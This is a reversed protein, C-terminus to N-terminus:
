IMLNKKKFNLDNAIDEIKEILYEHTDKENFTEFHIRDDADIVKLGISKLSGILYLINKETLDNKFFTGKVFSNNKDIYYYRRKASLILEKGIETTVRRIESDWSNNDMKHGCQRCYLSESNQKSGCIACVNDETMWVSRLASKTFTELNEAIRELASIFLFTVLESSTSIFNKLEEDRIIGITYLANFTMEVDKRKWGETSRRRPIKEDSNESNEYLMVFIFSILNSKNLNGMVEDVLAFASKSEEQLISSLRIVEEDFKGKEIRKM